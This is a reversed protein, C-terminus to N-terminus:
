RQGELPAQYPDRPVPGAYGAVSEPGPLLLIRLWHGASDGRSLTEGSWKYYTAIDDAYSGLVGALPASADGTDVLQRVLPRADAVLTTLSEAAPTAERNVPPVKTLPGVADRLLTRVLPTVGGLSESGTRLRRMAAATDSLPKDLSQLAARADDLTAPALALSERVRDGDDVGFGEVTTALQETLAAIEDSRASLRESLRTGSNLLNALPVGGDATLAGSVENTNSLIGPARRTFSQLRDGHGTMGGGLNRLVSSSSERTAPDFVDFLENVDEAEITQAAPITSGDRLEGTDPDGPDLNVFKQGLGSRDTVRAARANEYLRTDPDDLKLVAVAQGDELEIDSVFGVRSSAVRVDDGVNLGNLDDFAVKVVKREVLPMGHTANLAFLVAGSFLVLLVVGAAFARREPPVLTTAAAGLKRHAM